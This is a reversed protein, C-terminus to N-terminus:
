STISMYFGKSVVEDTKYVNIRVEYYGSELGTSNIFIIYNGNDLYNGFIHESHEVTNDTPNLFIMNKDISNLKYSENEQYLEVYLANNYGNVEVSIPIMQHSYLEDMEVDISVPKNDMLVGFGFIWLVLGFLALLCIITNRSKGDTDEKMIYWFTAVSGVIALLILGIGNDNVYLKDIFVYVSMSISYILFIIASHYFLSSVYILQEKPKSSFLSYYRLLIFIGLFLLVVISITQIYSLIVFAEFSLPQHYVSLGFEKFISIGIAVASIVFSLLLENKDKKNQSDNGM